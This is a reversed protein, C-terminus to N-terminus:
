SRVSPLRLAGGKWNFSKKGMTGEVACTCAVPLHFNRKGEDDSVRSEMRGSTRVCHLISPSAIDCHRLTATKSKITIGTTTLPLPLNDSLNLASSKEVSGFGDTQRDTQRDTHTHTHLYASCDLINNNYKFTDPAPRKIGVTLPAAPEYFGLFLCWCTPFHRYPSTIEPTM